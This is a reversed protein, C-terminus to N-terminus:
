ERPMSSIVNIVHDGIRECENIMNMFLTSQQFEIQKKDIQEYISNRLQNRFNNIEDEINYAKNLISENAEEKEISAVMHKLSSDTLSLMKSLNQKIEPNFDILMDSKLKLNIALHQINDAISEMEDIMKYISQSVLEGDSSLTTTSIQKLFDAIEEEAKDSEDELQQVKDHLSFLKVSGNPANLMLPILEFMKYTDKSYNLTEQKAQSLAIEGSDIFGSSIYQLKFPDNDVVKKDKILWTVMKELYSTFWILILLNIVNFITHFLAISFEPVGINIINCFHKFLILAWISGFINFLLHSLATRRATVNAKFSTIFPTICTGINAGLVLACAMELSIIGCSCMIVAITFTVASIQVVMTILMGLLAFLYPNQIETLDLSPISLKFIQISFFLLGLGIFIEGLSNKGRVNSNYLPLGIAILPLFYVSLDFHFGLIAILWTTVTTGVNAGMIVEIAQSLSILGANASSFAVVTTASSSQVLTATFFGSLVAVIKNEKIDSMLGRLHDGAVKQLGDSVSKMSYLFLGIAGLFTLLATVSYNMDSLIMYSM